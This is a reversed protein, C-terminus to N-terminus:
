DAQAVRRRATKKAPQATVPEAVPDPVHAVITIYGRAVLMDITPTHEVTARQGRGLYTSPTISGEVIVKAM